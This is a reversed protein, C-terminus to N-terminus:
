APPTWDIVKLGADVFRMDIIEDYPFTAPDPNGGITGTEIWAKLSDAKVYPTRFTPLQGAWVAPWIAENVKGFRTVRLKDRAEDPSEIIMKLARLDARVMAAFSDAHADIDEPRAELVQGQLRSAAPIDGAAISLLPVVGFEATIQETFPSLMFGGDIAGQALASSVNVINQLPVITADAAPDLGVQTLAMRTALDTHSGPATIGFKAGTAAKLAAQRDTLSSAATVGHKDAFAKTVVLTYADSNTYSEIVKVRQGRANASLLEGPASCNAEGEGALLATMAAPGGNLPIREFELGEDRYYGMDEALFTVSWLVLIAPSAHILRISGAGPTEAFASRSMPLMGAVAGAAGWQLVHRRSVKTQNLGGILKAM